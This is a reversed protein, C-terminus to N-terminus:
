KPLRFITKANKATVEAVTDISVGKLDAIKQATIPLYSPENRKGRMDQPTLFPCDTEILLDKLDVWRAAEHLPYAKPYTVNGAFSILFGLEICHQAFEKDGSFCHMIGKIKGKFHTLINLVDNHAERDHIVVPLGLEQALALQAEFVKIQVVKPSLNRFYDLGIEGIAVVKPNTALQKLEDLTKENFQNANHPHFGVTAYLGHRTEALKVGRKSGELDFGINVICDIQKDKARILVQERDADFSGWQLHAHSDIFM